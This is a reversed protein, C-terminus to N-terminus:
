AVVRVADRVAITGGIDIRATVGGHGRMANYGGAGLAAEMKSCPDCSGTVVLVVEHGIHIRVPRDAFLTRAALLNVGSIVLNRRFLAADIAERGTWAAILAVHEQQILTVQRDHGARAGATSRDGDLGRGALAIAKSVETVPTDRAPRLYIAEVCGQRPFRSSLERLVSADAVSRRALRPNTAAQM